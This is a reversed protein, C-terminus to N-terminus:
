SSYLVTVVIDLTRRNRHNRSVASTTAPNDHAGAAEAAHGGTPVSVSVLVLLPHTYVAETAQNARPAVVNSTKRVSFEASGTFEGWMAVVNTGIVPLYAVVM